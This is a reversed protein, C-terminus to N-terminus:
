RSDDHMSTDPIPLGEMLAQKHYDVVDVLYIDSSIIVFFLVALVSFLSCVPNFVDTIRHLCIALDAIFILTCLSVIISGGGVFVFITRTDIPGYWPEGSGALYYLLVSASFSLLLIITRLKLYKKLFTNM